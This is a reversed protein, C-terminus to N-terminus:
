FNISASPIFVEPRCISKFIVRIEVTIMRYCTKLKKTLIQDLSTGVTHVFYSFLRKKHTNTRQKRQSVATCNGGSEKHEQHTVNSLFSRKDVFISSVPFISSGLYNFGEREGLHEGALSPNPKSRIGDQLLVKRKSPAFYM